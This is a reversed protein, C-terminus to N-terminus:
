CRISLWIQSGFFYSDMKLWFRKRLIHWFLASFINVELKEFQLIYIVTKISIDVHAVQKDAMRSSSKLCNLDM